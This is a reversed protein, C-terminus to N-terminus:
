CKVPHSSLDLLIQVWQEASNRHEQWFPKTENFKILYVNSPRGYPYLCRFSYVNNAFGLNFTMWLSSRSHVLNKACVLLKFDSSWSSNRFEIPPKLIKLSSIMSLHRYVPSQNKTNQAVVIIEKWKKHSIASLYYSLPPQGYGPDVSSNFKAPFIDDQRIHMVLSNDIDGFEACFGVRCFGFYRRLCAAVEDIEYDYNSHFEKEEKSRKGMAPPNWWTAANGSLGYVKACSPHVNGTRSSFDMVNSAPPPKYIHMYDDETPLVIIAKCAHAQKVARAVSLIYNGTRGFGKTSTMALINKNSEMLSQNRSKFFYKCPPCEMTKNQLQGEHALNRSWFPSMTQHDPLRLFPPCM